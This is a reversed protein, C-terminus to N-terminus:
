FKRILITLTVYYSIVEWRRIVIYDKISNHRHEFMINFVIIYIYLLKNNDM